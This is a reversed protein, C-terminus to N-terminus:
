DLLQEILTRMAADTFHNSEGNTLIIVGARASPVLAMVARFGPNVGFHFIIHVGYTDATFWGLAYHLNETLANPAWDTGVAIEPRHLEAMLRASLVRQGSITGDGLQLLAYRAM